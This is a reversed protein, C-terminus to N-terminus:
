RPITSISAGELTMWNIRESKANLYSDDFTLDINEFLIDNLEEQNFLYVDSVSSYKEPYKICKKSPFEIMLSLCLDLLPLNKNKNITDYCYVNLAKRPVKDLYICEVKFDAFKEFYGNDQCDLELSYIGESIDKINLLQSSIKIRRGLSYTFSLLSSNSFPQFVIFILFPIYILM